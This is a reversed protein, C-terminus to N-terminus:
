CSSHNVEKYDQFLCFILMQWHGLCGVSVSLDSGRVRWPLYCKSLFVRVRRPPPLASVDPSSSAAGCESLKPLGKPCPGAPSLGERAVILGVRGCYGVHPRM